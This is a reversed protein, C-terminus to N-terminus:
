ANVECRTVRQQGTHIRKTCICQGFTLINLQKNLKSKFKACFTAPSLVVTVSEIHTCPFNHKQSNIMRRQPFQYAFVCLAKCAGIHISHNFFFFLYFFTPAKAFASESRYQVGITVHTNNQSIRAASPHISVTGHTTTTPPQM